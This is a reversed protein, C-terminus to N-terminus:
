KKKLDYNVIELGLLIWYSVKFRDKIVNIYCMVM